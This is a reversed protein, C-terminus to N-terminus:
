AVKKVADIIQEMSEKPLTVNYGGMLMKLDEVSQPLLDVIKVIHELRIRSIGMSEIESILSKADSKKLTKFQDLYEMAKNARFNLEGDRKQIKKLEDKMESSSIPNMEIIDPKAM